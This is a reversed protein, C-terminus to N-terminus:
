PRRRLVGLREIYTAGLNCHESAVRNKLWPVAFMFSGVIIQPAAVQTM